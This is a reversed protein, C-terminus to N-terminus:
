GPLLLVKASQLEKAPQINLNQLQLHGNFLFDVDIVDGKEVRFGSTIPFIAQEWCHGNDLIIISYM